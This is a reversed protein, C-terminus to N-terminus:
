CASYPKRALATLPKTRAPHGRASRAAHMCGQCSVVLGKSLSGKAAAPPPQPSPAISGGPAPTAGTGPELDRAGLGLASSRGGSTAVLWFVLLGTSFPSLQPSPLLFISLCDCLPHSCVGPEHRQTRSPIKVEYQVTGQTRTIEEDFKRFAFCFLSLLCCLKM